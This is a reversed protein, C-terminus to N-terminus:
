ASRSSYSFCRSLVHSVHRYVSECPDAGALYARQRVQDAAVEGVLGQLDEAVPRLAPRPQQLFHELLASALASSRRAGFRPSSTTASTRTSPPGINLRIIGRERPM